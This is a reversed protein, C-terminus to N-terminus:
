ASAEYSVLHAAQWDILDQKRYRIAKKGMKVFPPGTRKRRWLYLTKGTKLGLFTATQPETLTDPVKEPLAHLARRKERAAKRQAPTLKSKRAM